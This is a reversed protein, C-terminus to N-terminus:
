KFEFQQLALDNKRSGKQRALGEMSINTRRARWWLRGSFM